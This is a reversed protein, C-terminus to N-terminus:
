NIASLIQQVQWRFLDRSSNNRGCYEDKKTEDPFQLGLNPQRTLFFEATEAISRSDQAKAHVGRELKALFAHEVVVKGGYEKRNVALSGLSSKPFATSCAGGRHLGQDHSRDRPHCLRQRQAFPWWHGIWPTTLHNVFVLVKWDKLELPQLSKLDDSPDLLLIELLLIRGLSRLRRLSRRCRFEQTPLRGHLGTLRLGSDGRKVLRRLSPRPHMLTQLVVRAAVKWKCRPVDATVGVFASGHGYWQGRDQHALRRGDLIWHRRLRGAHLRQQLLLDLGHRRRLRVM